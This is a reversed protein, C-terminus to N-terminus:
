SALLGGIVRIVVWIGWWGFVTAYGASRKKGAVTSVGIALLIAAWLSVFDLQMALAYLAKNTDEFSLYYAVNTGAYNSLLFSEPAMGALLALTGLLPLILLPLTAYFYVALVESFSARGGFGFNITGWLVLTILLASVIVIVPSAGVAVKTILTAIRMANARQDAPLQDMRDAQKPNVRINNETVQPWGVKVTVAAFFIYMLFISLLFPLWWSRNGSKIDEFTKTPATFANTVRQWQSLSPTAEASPQVSLDSM